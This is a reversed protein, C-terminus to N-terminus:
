AALWILSSAEMAWDVFFQFGEVEINEAADAAVHKDSGHKIEAKFQRLELGFEGFEGQAAVVKVGMAGLTACDFADFKVDVEGVVVFVFVFLAVFVRVVVSMGVFVGFSVM